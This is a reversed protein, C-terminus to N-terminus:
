DNEKNPWCGEIAWDQAQRFDQTEPSRIDDLPIGDDEQMIVVWYTPRAGGKKRQIVNRDEHSFIVTDSLRVGAGGGNEPIFEIGSSELSKCIQDITSQKLDDGRELRSITAQAVGALAALERVGLGLAVRAMKCQAANM